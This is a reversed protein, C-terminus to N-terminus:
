ALLETLTNLEELKRALEEEEPTIVAEVSDYMSSREIRADIPISNVGSSKNRGNQKTESYFRFIGVHLGHWSALNFSSALIDNRFLVFSGHKRSKKSSATKNLEYKKKPFEEATTQELPGVYEYDSEAQNRNELPADLFSDIKADIPM